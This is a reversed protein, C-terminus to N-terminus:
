NLVVIAANLALAYSVWTLYPALLWGAARDVRGFAALTAAVALWLLAMDVLAAAPRRLAFFLMSWAANLALQAGFLALAPGQGPRERCRWVRWAAVAMLLYLASWVPGFLWGPPTFSPKVLTAYWGTMGLRTAWAASLGVALTLGAFGGFVALSRGSAPSTTHM